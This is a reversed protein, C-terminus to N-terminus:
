RNDKEVYQGVVLYHTHEREHNSLGARLSTSSSVVFPLGSSREEQAHGLPSRVIHEGM